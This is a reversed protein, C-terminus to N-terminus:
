APLYNRWEDTEAAAKIVWNRRELLRRLYATLFLRDTWRGLPGFPSDFDFVDRMRTGDATADFFHDHDFRRFAGAVMSDRFHSPPTMQTIRSTLRQRVGLHRASWTVEEGLGILGSTVGGVAREGTHATSKRHLDISRALDFVRGVPARVSIALHIVPM